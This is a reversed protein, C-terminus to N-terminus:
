AFLVIEITFITCFTKRLQSFVYFVTACPVQRPLEQLVRCLFEVQVPIAFGLVINGMIKGLVVGVEQTRDLFLRGSCAFLKRKCIPPRPDFNGDDQCTIIRDWKLEFGDRCKYTIQDGVEYSDQIPRVISFRPRKPPRCVVVSVRFLVNSLKYSLGNADLDWEIQSTHEAHFILVQFFKRGMKILRIM